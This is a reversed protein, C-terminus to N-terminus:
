DIWGGEMQENRCANDVIDCGAGNSGMGEPEWVEFGWSFWGILVRVDRFIREPRVSGVSPKTRRGARRGELEELRLM